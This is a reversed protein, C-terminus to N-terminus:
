VSNENKILGPSQDSDIAGPGGHFVGLGSRQESMLAAVNQAGVGLRNDTDDLLRDALRLADVDFNHRLVRLPRDQHSDFRNQILAILGDACNARRTIERFQALCFCHRAFAM